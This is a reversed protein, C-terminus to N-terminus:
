SDFVDMYAEVAKAHCSECAYIGMSHRYQGASIAEGCGECEPTEPEDNVDPSKLKGHPM